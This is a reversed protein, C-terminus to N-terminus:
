IAQCNRRAPLLCCLKPPVAVFRTEFPKALPIEM